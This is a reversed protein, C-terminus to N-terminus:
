GQSSFSIYSQMFGGNQQSQSQHKVASTIRPSAAVSGHGLIVSIPVYMKVLWKGVETAKPLCLLCSTGRQGILLHGHKTKEPIEAM